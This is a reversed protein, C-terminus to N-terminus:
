WCIADQTIHMGTSLTNVKVTLTLSFTFHESQRNFRSHKNEDSPQLLSNKRGIFM